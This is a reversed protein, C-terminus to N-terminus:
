AGWKLAELHKIFTMYKGGASLTKRGNLSCIRHCCFPFAQMVGVSFNRRWGNNKRRRQQLMNLGFLHLKQWTTWLNCWMWQIQQCVIRFSLSRTHQLAADTNCAHKSSIWNKAGSKDWDLNKWWLFHAEHSTSAHKKLMMRIERSLMFPTYCIFFIRLDTASLIFRWTHFHKGNSFDVNGIYVKFLIFKQM